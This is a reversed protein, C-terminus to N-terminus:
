VAEKQLMPKWVQNEECVLATEGGKYRRNRVVLRREGLWIEDGAHWDGDPVDCEIEDPKGSIIAGTVPTVYYTKVIARM